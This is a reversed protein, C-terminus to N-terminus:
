LILQSQLKEALNGSWIGQEIETERQTHVSHGHLRFTKLIKTCPLRHRHLSHRMVTSIFTKLAKKLFSAFLNVFKM